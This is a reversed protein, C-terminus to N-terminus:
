MDPIILDSVSLRLCNEAAARIADYGQGPGRKVFHVKSEGDQRPPPPALNGLVCKPKTQLQHGNVHVPNQPRRYTPGSKSEAHLSCSIASSPETEPNFTVQAM